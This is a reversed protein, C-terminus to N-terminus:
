EGASDTRPAHYCWHWPEFVYGDMNGRPYTMVFGFRSANAALWAYAATGEFAEDIDPVDDSVIDVARGTHHESYGPPAISTLINELSRGQGLNERIIEAQRAVGRFASGLLITVGDDAAAIKMSRWAQAANPQLLFERGDAGVEAVMLETAEAHAKLARAAINAPAIGLLALTDAITTSMSPLRVLPPSHLM